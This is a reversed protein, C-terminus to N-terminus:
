KLNYYSMIVLLPLDASTLINQAVIISSTGKTMVSIGDHKYIFMNIYPVLM